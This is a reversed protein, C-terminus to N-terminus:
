KQHEALWSRVFVTGLVIKEQLSDLDIFEELTHIKGGEVGMTDLVPVGCAQVINGDSGGGSKCWSIEKNFLMQSNKNLLDFWRQIEPTCPKPPRTMGGLLVAECKKQDASSFVTNSDVIEQIAQHLYNGDELREFRCDITGTAFDPVVNKAVGGDILGVTVAIGRSYDTLSEIQEIKRALERIANIGRKHDRGAHANRGYVNLRYLSIGGRDQVYRGDEQTPEFILALGYDQAIKQIHQCSDLSGVEEDSNIVVTVNFERLLNLFLLTKFIYLMVVLGGKMDSTGSGYAISRGNKKDIKFTYPNLVTDMHGVCLLKPRNPVMPFRAILHAGFQKIHERKQERPYSIQGGAVLEVQFGLAQFETQFIQAAKQIGGVDFSTSPIDVLKQLLAISEHKKEDVFNRLKDIWFDEM